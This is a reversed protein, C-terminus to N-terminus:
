RCSTSRPRRAAQLFAIQVLRGEVACRMCTASSMTAASWTSSSTSAAAAPRRRSWRSSIRAAPLRDRADAGLEECAHANTARQRRHRLRRRRVRQALQIATTGIGRRAAMSSSARARSCGAASSSMPWVTFFTEPMGGGRGHSARGPDAPMAAGPGRLIRCLRRRHGARMGADGVRWRDVGAGSRWSRAPSRSARAHRLRGAAASLRGARQLVDPRNVGAAAVQILVEGPGPAPVAMRAPVLVEPRGPREIRIYTMETPIATM